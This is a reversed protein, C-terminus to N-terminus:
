RSRRLQLWEHIGRQTYGLKAAIRCSAPDHAHWHPVIDHELCYAILHAAVATALGQGRFEPFTMIQVEIANLSRSFSTAYAAIRDGAVVCFGIGYKILSNLTWSDLELEGSAILGEHKDGHIEQGLRRALQINLRKVKFGDPLRLSLSRVHTLDLNEPSFAVRRIPQLTDGYIRIALDKWAESEPIICGKPMQEMLLEAVPLVPDGGFFAMGGVQIGAVQPALSQDALALGSRYGQYGEIASAIIARGLIHNQFLPRLCCRKAPKVWVLDAM